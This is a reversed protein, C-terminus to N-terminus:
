VVIPQQSASVEGIHLVADMPVNRKIVALGLPGNEFHQTVSTLTGVVRGDLTVESGVVPLDNTSGDIFLQVLRRPPKGLNYVRAVTEQGRYCGKNLHVASGILGVEHPITKHDTEFQHRPVGACIRHAEWAWTGVPDSEALVDELKERPAFIESVEYHAPRQPVYPDIVDSPKAYVSSSHWVPFESEVFGGAGVVAIDDSRDAIEVRTMFKMKNFYDLLGAQTGPEVSIWTTEGDDVVHLDHEVHGHPSLVLAQTSGALETFHQTTITHLWTLREPGTLTIVGRHSLDIRGRGEALARTERFPDGYHWPVAADISTDDMNVIATMHRNHSIALPAAVAQVATESLAVETPRHVQCM